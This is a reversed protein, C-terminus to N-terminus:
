QATLEYVYASGSSSGNDDDRPSGVVVINGNISVSEGFFDDKAANSAFLKIDETWVTGTRQFIYAAGTDKVGDDGQTAGIVALDGDLSVSIGFADRNSGDSATLKAEESWSSGNFRFVYAAGTDPGPSDGFAGALVTDGSISVSFGM